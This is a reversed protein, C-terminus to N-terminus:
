GRPQGSDAAQEDLPPDFAAAPREMQVLELSALKKSYPFYYVRYTHGEPIFEYAPQSVECPVGNVAIQYVRKRGSRGIHKSAPGEASALRGLAFEAAALGARYLLPVVAAGFVLLFFLNETLLEWLSPRTESDFFGVFVQYLVLGGFFVVGLDFLIPPLLRLRQRLSAQLFTRNSELDEASFGISEQLQEQLQWRTLGTSDPPPNLRLLGRRLLGALWRLGQFLFYAAFLLPLYRWLTDYLDGM